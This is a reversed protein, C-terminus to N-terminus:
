LMRGDREYRALEAEGILVLGLGPRELCVCNWFGHPEDFVGVVLYTRREYDVASAHKPLHLSFSQGVRSTRM